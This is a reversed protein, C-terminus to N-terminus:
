SGTKHRGWDLNKLAALCWQYHSRYDAKVTKAVYQQMQSEAESQIRKLDMESIKSVDLFGLLAIFDTSNIKLVRNKLKPSLVIYDQHDEFEDIASQTVDTLHDPIAIKLDYYEIVPTSQKAM